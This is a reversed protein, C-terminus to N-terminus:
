RSLYDPKTYKKVRHTLHWVLGKLRSIFFKYERHLFLNAILVYLKFITFIIKQWWTGHKRILLFMNRTDYFATTQSLKQGGVAAGEKHWVHASDAFGLEFGTKRLRLGLDVDEHYYFYDEDFGGTLQLAKKTLCLACGSIFDIKEPCTQQQGTHLSGGCFWWGKYLNIIGGMSHFKDPQKQWFVKAGIAGLKEDQYFPLIIKELFDSAVETDNNLFLLYDFNKIKEFAFKVGTNNGGCFGLNKQNQLITIKPENIFENKLTQAEPQTSANDVVLVEWNKFSNKLLSQLCARTDTIGNWNITVIIIKPLNTM